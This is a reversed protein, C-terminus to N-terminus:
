TTVVRKCRGQRLPTRTGATPSYCCGNTAAGRRALEQRLHWCIDNLLPHLNLHNRRTYRVREREHRLQLELAVHLRIQSGVPAGEGECGGGQQRECKM